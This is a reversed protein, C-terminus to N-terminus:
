SGPSTRVVIKKGDGVFIQYAALNKDTLYEIAQSLNAMNTDDPQSLIHGLEVMTRRSRAFQVMIRFGKESDYDLSSIEGSHRMKSAKWNELFALVKKLQASDSELIGTIVPLNAAKKAEFPGFAFADEDLYSLEGGQNELLAIPNRFKVRVGLTQPFIKSLGVSHIWPHTTVRKEMSTLDLDFLSVQGVPAELLKLIVEKEFPANTSYDTFEIKKFTFLPSKYTWYGGVGLGALVTVSVVVTLIKKLM